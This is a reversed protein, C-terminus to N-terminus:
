VSKVAKDLVSQFTDVIFSIDSKTVGAHCPIYFGKRNAWEAVSFTRGETMKAYCPQNTIPMMPRTEIGVSELAACLGDRDVKSRERLVIPFMLWTHHREAVPLVLDDFERLGHRLAEAVGQRARVDEALVGLQALGLEAQMETARASYGIRDFEFKGAERRGHNAYSWMLYRLDEDQTVAVGGVGTTLHHAMYTSYCGVDGQLPNLITECSDELVRWGREACLEYIKASPEQGFLHVPVVCRLKALKDVSCNYDHELNWANITYDHISVDVLHPRLNAQLVTNITAPFTLTPVAVEDGDAWGFKEKMALLAVRLADTGSNVFLAHGAGHLKAFKEEFEKVKPGPSYQPLDESVLRIRRM